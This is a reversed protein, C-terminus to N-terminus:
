VWNRAGVVGELNKPTNQPKDWENIKWNRSMMLIISSSQDSNSAAALSLSHGCGSAYRNFVCRLGPIGRCAGGRLGGCQQVCIGMICIM